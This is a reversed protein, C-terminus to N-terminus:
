NLGDTEVINNNLAEDKGNIDIVEIRERKAGDKVKYKVMVRERPSSLAMGVMSIALLLRLMNSMM